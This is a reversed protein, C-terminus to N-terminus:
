DKRWLDRVWSRVTPPRPVDRYRERLTTYRWILVVSGVVLWIMGGVYSRGFSVLTALVLLILMSLIPHWLLFLEFRRRLRSWTSEM